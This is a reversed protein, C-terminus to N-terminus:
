SESTTTEAATAAAALDAASAEWKTTTVVRGARGGVRGGTRARGWRGGASGIPPRQGWRGGVGGGSAAVAHLAPTAGSAPKIGKEQQERLDKLQRELVNIKKELTETMSKKSESDEKELKSLMLVYTSIQNQLLTEKKKWLNTAHDRLQCVEEFQQKIEQDAATAAGGAPANAKAVTGPSQVQQLVYKTKGPPMVPPQKKTIIAHQPLPAQAYGALYGAHTGMTRGAMGGANEYARSRKKGVTPESSSADDGDEGGEDTEEMRPMLAVEATSIINDYHQSIKIFRNSLVALPSNVCKKAHAAEFFQVLCENYTKKEKEGGGEKEKEGGAGGV